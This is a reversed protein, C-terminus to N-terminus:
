IFYNVQYNIIKGSSRLLTTSALPTWSTCSSTSPRQHVLNDDIIQNNDRINKITKESTEYNTNLTDELGLM